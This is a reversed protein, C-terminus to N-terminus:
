RLNTTRPTTATAAQQVMVHPPLSEAVLSCADGEEVSVQMAQLSMVHKDASSAARPANFAQVVPMTHTKTGVTIQVAMSKWTFMTNFQQLFHYWLVIPLHTTM